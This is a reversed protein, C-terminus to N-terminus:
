KKQMITGEISKNLKIPEVKGISPEIKSTLVKLKKSPLNQGKNKVTVPFGM